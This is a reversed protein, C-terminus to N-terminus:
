RKTPDDTLYLFNLAGKLLNYEPDRQSFSSQLSGRSSSDLCVSSTEHFRTQGAHNIYYCSGIGSTLNEGQPFFVENMNCPGPFYDLCCKQFPNLLLLILLYIM